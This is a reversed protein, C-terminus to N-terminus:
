SPGLRKGPRYRWERSIKMSPGLDSLALEAQAKEGARYREWEAALLSRAVSNKDGQTWQDLRKGICHMLIDSITVSAPTSTFPQIPHGTHDFRQTPSKLWEAIEVDWTEGLLRQKQEMAAAQNLDESDLWWCEGARYRSVAEAWIQDRDRSLEDVRISSYAIPWFRRGGTEDRLYTAHNVSGGFVCQRPSTIVRRGYPPRFRDTTRSLFAKIKGTEVRSLSDLESIEIIWTGITQMSADKSGIDAIEDTFWEGGLTKFVTSKRTGQPGELILCHDVKAGPQYIRAVASMLWRAGVAETYPTTEAGLYLSLWSDIRGTGDWTLSDLYDRVPHFRREMAVTQVAQAAVEVGVAIGERQLWNTLLRDENDTWERGPIWEREPAAGWPAPRLAVTGMSFENYALVGFWEPAERLATIANALLARPNLDKNKILIDRWDLHLDVRRPQDPMPVTGPDDPYAGEFTAVLAPDRSVHIHKTKSSEM